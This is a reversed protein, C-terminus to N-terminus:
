DMKLKLTCIQIPLGLRKINTYVSKSFRDKDLIDQDNYVNGSYSKVKVLTIM